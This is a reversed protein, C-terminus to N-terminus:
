TDGKEGLFIAVCLCNQGGGGFSTQTSEKGRLDEVPEMANTEPCAQYLSLGLPGSPFDYGNNRRDVLAAACTLFM